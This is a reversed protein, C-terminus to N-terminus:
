DVHVWSWDRAPKKKPNKFKGEDLTGTGFNLCIYPETGILKCWYLFEDTGFQNPEIGIWAPDRRNM